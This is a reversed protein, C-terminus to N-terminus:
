LESLVELLSEAHELTAQRASESQREWTKYAFGIRPNNAFRAQHRAMFHWYLSNFPCAREGTKDKVRYHCTKCYDSMKNIYNGSAAYPKTAILGGDASTAMGRTNPMEVWELADVYIGLYWADVQDPDLGALMCFNGIVMLRQIHHAYSTELSQKICHRLCNMRTNGDWFWTPLPRHASLSNKSAYSPMNIWYMGRVYERWGLIQRVFGELQAIDINGPASIYAEMATQIVRRPSLLKANMAFSLRSHYLSWAHSSNETMADQFQGFRPLLYACFYDLLDLSQQRTTPWPLDELPHGFHQVAHTGLRTLIPRVDNSFLLPPPIESLDAAKFANRNEADFNWRSGWPEDGDMMVGTDKRMRRYFSEMRVHKDAKFYRSISNFPLLFHETDDCQCSTTQQQCWQALQQAVRFEDPQQYAFHRANTERMITSLLEGIDRYQCTDDLTLYRVRHGAALLANAFNAMAAFFACIKQVHHTVYDTEQRLEAILYLVGDDRQKYWSHAANLQDGLILRVTHTNSM